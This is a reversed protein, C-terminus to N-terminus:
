YRPITPDVSSYADVGGALNYVQTFGEAALREAARQSRVGHHCVLVVRVDRGLSRLQALGAEDLVRHGPIAALEREGEPRVDYLLVPEGKALLEQLAKASLQRVRAPSEPLRLSFGEEEGERVYDIALGRARPASQPDLVIGLEGARVLVDGPERPGVSLDFRGGPLVEVRVFEEGSGGLAELLKAKAADSVTVTPLALAGELAPERALPGEPARASPGLAAHLEGRADLAELAEADGLLAGRVFLLPVRTSGALAALGAALEAQARVEVLEPRVGCRELQARARASAAADERWLLVVEHAELLTKAQLEGDRM